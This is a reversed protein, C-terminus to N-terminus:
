LQRVLAWATIAALAALLFPAGALHVPLAPSTFAYFLWATVLPAAVATLGEVASLVGQMEGQHDVGGRGSVMARVSPVALGALALLVVAPVMMWGALALALIAYGLAGACYGVLATTREGLRATVRTLLVGEVVAQSLGVGALLLGNAVPGWGFRYRTFLVLSSQVAGLGVWSCSWSLALRRLAPDRVVGKLLGFPNARAWSIPRRHEPPLSEPLVFFGYLLNAFAIGAAAYFPLRLGHEGLIGGLAPGIVFGAGFTAGILGFRGTKEDPDSVDAIFATAAAVNASTAGAILRGLFLWWLSPAWALLLYDIGIGCVSTLIVVRRGFRDSLAGLLPAAFFQVGAYAAILAGVWPAAREPPLHALQQVLGPVIPAIIGVGLADLGLTILVFVISVRASGKEGPAATASVVIPVLEQLTQLAAAKLHPTNSPQWHCSLANGRKM